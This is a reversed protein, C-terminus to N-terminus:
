KFHIFTSDTFQIKVKKSAEKRRELFFITDKGEKTSM